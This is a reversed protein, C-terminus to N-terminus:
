LDGGPWRTKAPDSVTVSAPLLTNGLLQYGKVAFTPANTQVTTRAVATNTQTTAQAVATNTQATSPAVTSNTQATAPPVASVSNTGAARLATAGCFAALLMTTFARALRNKKRPKDRRWLSPTMRFRKKFMANFLSLNRYGSELAVNVIKADTERLLQSAKLLRLETQKARVSVGLHERFLRNLHRPSGAM